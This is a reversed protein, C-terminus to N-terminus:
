YEPYYPEEHTFFLWSARDLMRRALETRVTMGTLENPGFGQKDPFDVTVAKQFSVDDALVSDTEIVSITGGALGEWLYQNGPDHLRFEVVEIVVLREVGGLDKAVDSYPKATWGPNSYIYKLVQGAPVFGGARPLNNSAALRTTMQGTLYDVLSPHDAQISREATVVVAFTKGELGLYEAEISRTSTERYSEMAGGIFTCGSNAGAAVGAVAFGAGRVVRKWNHGFGGM